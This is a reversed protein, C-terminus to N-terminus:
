SWQPPSISATKKFPPEQASALEQGPFLLPCSSLSGVSFSNLTKETHVQQRYSLCLWVFECIRSKYKSKGVLGPSAAPLHCWPTPVQLSMAGM